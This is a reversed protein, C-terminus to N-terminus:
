THSLLAVVPEFPSVAVTLSPTETCYDLNVPLHLTGGGAPLTALLTTATDQTAIDCRYKNIRIWAASGEPLYVAQPAAATTMQDGSHSYRYGLVRGQGDLASLAPYGDLVCPAATNTLSWDRTHQGTAESVNPGPQARLAAAQCPRAGSINTPGTSVVAIVVTDSPVSSGAAPAQSIVSGAIVNDSHELRYDNALNANGLTTQATFFYEEGVVNPVTVLTSTAVPAPAQVAPSSSTSTTASPAFPSDANRPGSSCSSALVAAGALMLAGNLWRRGPLKSM